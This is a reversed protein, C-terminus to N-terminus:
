RSGSSTIGSQNNSAFNHGKNALERGGFGSIGLAAIAVEPGVDQAPSIAWYEAVISTFVAILPIAFSVFIPSLM